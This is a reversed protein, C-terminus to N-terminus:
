GIRRSVTILTGGIQPNVVYGADRLAETATHPGSVDYVLSDGLSNVLNFKVDEEELIAEVRKRFFATQVSERLIEERVIRRLQSETIRM